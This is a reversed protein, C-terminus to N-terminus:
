VGGLDQATGLTFRDEIAGPRALLLVPFEVFADTRRILRQPKKHRHFHGDFSNQLLLRWHLLSRLIGSTIYAEFSVAVPFRRLEHSPAGAAPVARTENVDLTQRLKRDPFFCRPIRFSGELGPCLATVAFLAELTNELQLHFSAKPPAVSRVLFWLFKYLVKRRSGQGASEFAFTFHVGRIM